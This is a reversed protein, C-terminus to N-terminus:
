KNKNSILEGGCNGCAYQGPKEVVKSRRYRPFECGCEICEILWDPEVFAECQVHTKLKKALTKFSKGHTADGETNLLHAHILEHRITAALASWGKNDFYKWSLIISNPNNNQYKLVGARRKARKSVGWDIEGINASLNYENVVDRAYIKCIALFESESCDSEISYWSLDNCLDNSDGIKETRKDSM